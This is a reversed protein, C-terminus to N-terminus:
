KTISNKENDKILANVAFGLGLMVYFLPAVSIIQDNFLGAALYGMVGTFIGIGMFDLYDTLRKNIFLKISDLFYIFFVSLLAILSITGTNIGIQLFMNHPKDIITTMGFPTNLRGVFDNQDIAVPYMDPGDGIFFNEYLLPASIQWIYGRSSAFRGYDVLFDLRRPYETEALGGVGHIKFTGETLYITFVRSYIHARLTPADTGLVFRYNAYREDTFTITNGEQSIAIPEGELTNFNISGELYELQMSADETIIDLTNEGFALDEFKVMDLKQEETKRIEEILNMTKLENLIRGESFHNLTYGAIFITILTLVIKLPQKIIMKRFLIAIFIFAFGIGVLGARSNSGFLVFAMLLMFIGSLVIPILKKTSFFIGISFPVMLAGFSGVFNTNYMTAYITNKGFQFTFDEILHHMYSPLVLRKGFDTRFFDYGFYQGIGIAATVVGVFIFAGMLAKVHKKERVMNFVLVITLVYAILVFMGQFMEMFGRLAITKDEAFLTSLIVFVNYVILPRYMPHKKFTIQDLIRLFLMFLATGYVTVSFWIAKYASFFDYHQSGGRWHAEEIGEIEFIRAFVILPIIAVIFLLPSLHVLSLGKPQSTEEKQKPIKPDEM